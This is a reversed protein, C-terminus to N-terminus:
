SSKTVSSETTVVVKVQRGSAADALAAAAQALPYQATVLDEPRVLGAELMRISELDDERVYTASDQIRFRLDQIQAASSNSTTRPRVQAAHVDSGCIRSVTMQVLVEGPGPSPIPAAEIEVTGPSSFLVRRMM